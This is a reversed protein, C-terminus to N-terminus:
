KKRKKKATGYRSRAQKECTSRKKKPQKACVKLAKALKQTNTLKKTTTKTAGTNEQSGSPFAIAPTVILPVVAPNVLPDAIPPTTFTADAGTAEGGPNSVVLRYHYTTGAELGRLSLTVTQEGQEPLVTGFAQTGYETNTGYEFRYATEKGEPNITGSITAEGTSIGSAPGTTALPSQGAVATFTEDQGYSTGDENWAVLRYHYSVGPTLPVLIAPAQVASTGAGVTIGPGEPSTSQGYETTPGYQYYYYTEAGEPTVTGTVNASSQGVESTAGTSAMPATPSTTFSEIEGEAPKGETESQANEAIVRYYYPTDLSLGTANATAGQGGFGELGPAPPAGEVRIGKHALVETESTSYEFFYTTKENEPNVAANLTAGSSTVNSASESGAFVEPLAPLTTFPVENGPTTEGLENTAVLCFEYQKNPQLETVEKEEPLAQVEAEPEVASQAPGTTCAPETSYLFFWGAKVAVAAKPNLVGHLTATTATIGTAPTVTEPKEPATALAPAATLLLGGTLVGLTALGATLLRRVHRM